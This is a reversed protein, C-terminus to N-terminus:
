LSAPTAFYPMKAAEALTGADLNSWFPSDYWDPDSVAKTGRPFRIPAGDEGVECDNQSANGAEESGDQLELHWIREVGMEKLYERSRAYGIAVHAIGHADDSLCVRGGLDLIRRLVDSGPYPTQWGKRLSASNIEFLAGYSIALCINRMVAAEITIALSSTPHVTGTETSGLVLRATPKFLRCLDFHGIVEPRFDNLLQHQADLYAMTMRLHAETSNEPDQEGSAGFHRLARRFTPEDFDISIALPECSSFAHTHGGAHHVSGVLYDIVGKGVLAGDSVQATTDLVSEKLWRLTSPTLNETEAGVLVRIQKRLKQQRKAEALYGRWRQMLEYPRIGEEIEEPYLESDHQRPVHESLCYTHFGLQEARDLMM